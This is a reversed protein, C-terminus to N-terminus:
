PPQSLFGLFAAAFCLHRNNSFPAMLVSLFTQRLVM